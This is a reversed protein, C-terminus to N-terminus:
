LLFCCRGVAKVNSWSGDEFVADGRAADAGAALMAASCCQLTAIAAAFVGRLRISSTSESSSDRARSVIWSVSQEKFTALIYIYIYSM